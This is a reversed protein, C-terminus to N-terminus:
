LLDLLNLEKWLKHTTGTKLKKKETKVTMVNKVMKTLTNKRKETLMKTKKRDKKLISYKSITKKATM